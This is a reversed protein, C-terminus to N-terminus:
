QKKKFVIQESCKKVIYDFFGRLDEYSDQSFTAKFFQLHFLLDIKEADAVILYDFTADSENFTVKSSKPLEDVVYGDPIEISLSYKDDILYPMEVPYKREASKLPNEKYENRMIPSFYIINDATTGEATVNCKMTLPKECDDKDEFKIKSISCEDTNSATLGKEVDEMGKTAIKERLENSEDFNLNYLINGSWKGPTSDKFLIVGTLKNEKLIDSSFFVPKAENDIIRAHGNYCYSPLENFGLYHQSADLYYTSSDLTVQCVVYNFKDIIPYYPSTYGHSKTSLIVPTAQINEHRLMTVLLMNIDAISGSKNKFVDKLNKDLLIGKIDTSKINNRVYYYIKKTKDLGTTAGSLINASEDNLWGNNRNLRDGFDERKLLEESAKTWTGMISEYPRNPLKIGALQFEIKAIHNKISSTYAEEKLAPVNKMVWRKQSTNPSLTLNEARGSQGDPHITINYVASGSEETKISFPEYGQFLTVYDFYEPINVSYESWVVPYNDQFAWPQLDFLFDSHVVYSYEIISGEKVSPLTFKKILRKQDYQDSFIADSKMKTEKVEGDEINYTSAKVNSLIEEGGSNKYLYVSVDALDFGNKNIIKIRKQHKFVLSFWGASNGEFDSYGVDSVIVAGASTDVNYKSVDFDDKTVHGFKVPTKEQQALSLLCSFLLLSLVSLSKSFM